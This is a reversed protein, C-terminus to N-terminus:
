IEALTKQIANFDPLEGANDLVEAYRLIGQKDILFASRKSVQNLDFTSAEYLCGYAKSVARTGDSLLPFNLQHEQKFRTLLEIPDVSIGLIQASLGEYVAAQDRVGCFEKICVSTFSQPFFLLLVNKGIFDNLSVTNNDTDILTFSPAPQGPNM